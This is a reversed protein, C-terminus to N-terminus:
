PHSSGYVQSIKEKTIKAYIQITKINVHRLMRSVNHADFSEFDLGCCAILQNM